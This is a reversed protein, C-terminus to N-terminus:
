LFFIRCVAIANLGAVTAVFAVLSLRLTWWKRNIAVLIGNIGILGAAVGMIQNIEEM